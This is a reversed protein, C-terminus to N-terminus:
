QTKLSITLHYQANYSNSNYTNIFTTSWESTFGSQDSLPRLRSFSPQSKELHWNHKFNLSPLYFVADREMKWVSCPEVLIAKQFCVSIDTNDIHWCSMNSPRSEHLPASKQDTAKLVNWVLLHAPTLVVYFTERELCKCVRNHANPM